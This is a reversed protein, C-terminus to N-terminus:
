LLGRNEAVDVDREVAGRISGASADWQLRAPPNGQCLRGRRRLQLVGDRIQRVENSASRDLAKLVADDADIPHRGLV